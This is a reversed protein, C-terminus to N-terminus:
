LFVVPWGLCFGSHLLNTCDCLNEGSVGYSLRSWHLLFYLYPIVLQKGSDLSLLM